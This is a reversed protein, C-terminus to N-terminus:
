PTAVLVSYFIGHVWCIRGDPDTPDSWLAHPRAGKGLPATAAPTLTVTVTATPLDVTISGQPGPVTTVAVLPPATDDTASPRIVFEWDLGTLDLPNDDEDTLIFDERWLSGVATNTNWQFTM